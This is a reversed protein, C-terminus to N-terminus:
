IYYYITVIFSDALMLITVPLGGNISSRYNLLLWRGYAVVWRSCWFKGTLVRYKPDVTQNTKICYAIGATGMGHGGRKSPLNRLAPVQAALPPSSSLPCFGGDEVVSCCNETIVCNILAVKLLRFSTVSLFRVLKMAM